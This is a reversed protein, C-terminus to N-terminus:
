VILVPGKSLTFRGPRSTSCGSGDLASTLSLITSCRKVTDPGEHGTRPHAKGKDKIDVQVKIVLLPYGDTPNPPEDTQPPTPPPPSHNAPLLRFTTMIFGQMVDRFTISTFLNIFNRTDM